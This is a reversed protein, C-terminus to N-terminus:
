VLGSVADIVIRMQNDNGAISILGYMIKVTVLGLGWEHLIVEITAHRPFGRFPIAIYCEFIIGFLGPLVFASLITLISIKAM